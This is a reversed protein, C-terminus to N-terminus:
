SYIPWSDMKYHYDIVMTLVGNTSPNLWKPVNSVLAKLWNSYSPHALFNPGPAQYQLFCFRLLEQDLTLLKRLLLGHVIKSSPGVLCWHGSNPNECCGMYHTTQPRLSEKGPMDEWRHVTSQKMSRILMASPSGGWKRTINVSCPKTWFHHLGCLLEESSYLKEFCKKQWRNVWNEQCMYVHRPQHHLLWRSFYSLWHSPYMGYIFHVFLGFTGFWWGSWWWIGM